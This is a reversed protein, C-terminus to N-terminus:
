SNHMDELLSLKNDLIQILKKKKNDEQIKASKKEQLTRIKEKEEEIKESLEAELTKLKEGEEEREEQIKPITENIRRKFYNLIDENITRIERNNYTKNKHLFEIFQFEMEPNARLIEELLELTLFQLINYSGLHLNGLKVIENFDTINHIHKQDGEQHALMYKLYGSSNSKFQIMDHPKLTKIADIKVPINWTEYRRGFYIKTSIPLTADEIFRQVIHMKESKMDFLCKNLDDISKQTEIKERYTKICKVLRMSTRFSRSDKLDEMFISIYTIMDEVKMNMEILDTETFGLEKVKLLGFRDILNYVPCKNTADTNDTAIVGTGVSHSCLEKLKKKLLKRNKKILSKDGNTLWDNICELNDCAILTPDESSSSISHQDEDTSSSISKQTEGGSFTYDIEYTKM